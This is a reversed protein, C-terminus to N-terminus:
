WTVWRLANCICHFCCSGFCVLNHWESYGCNTCCLLVRRGPRPFRLNQHFSSSMEMSYKHFSVINISLHNTGFSVNKFYGELIGREKWTQELVIIICAGQASELIRSSYNHCWYVGRLFTLSLMVLMAIVDRTVVSLDTFTMFVNRNLICQKSQGDLVAEFRVICELM